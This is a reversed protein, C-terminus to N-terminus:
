IVLYSGVLLYIFMGGIILVSVGLVFVVVYFVVSVSFM